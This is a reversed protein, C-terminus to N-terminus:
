SNRALNCLRIGGLPHSRRTVLHSDQSEWAVIHSRQRTVNVVATETYAFYAAAAARCTFEISNMLDIEDAPAGSAGVSLVSMVM